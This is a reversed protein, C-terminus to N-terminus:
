AAHQRSERGRQPAPPGPPEQEPRTRVRAAPQLTIVSRKPRSTSVRVMRMGIRSCRRPPRFSIMVGAPRRCRCPLRASVVRQDLREHARMAPPSSDLTPLSARDGVECLVLAHSVGINAPEQRQGAERGVEDLRDEVAPLPPPQLQDLHQARVQAPPVFLSCPPESRRSISNNSWAVEFDRGGLHLM